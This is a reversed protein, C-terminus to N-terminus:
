NGIAIWYSKTTNSGDTNQFTFGSTSINSVGCRGHNGSAYGGTASISWVATPFATPFSIATSSGASTAGGDGWQLYLAGPLIITGNAGIGSVDFGLSTLASAVSAATPTASGGTANMVFTNAAQAALGAAPLGTCNTLTGSAPTGLAGSQFLLAGTGSEDTMASRLNASSPTALWTAVNSGLGTIGGVPLTCNTLTGSSPTGLAGNFLVPAGASGTNVALATAIGTGLGSIDTAVAVQQWSPAGSSVQRLFKNTATSNVALAQIASTGNGYLVGNSALTVAGTGGNAVALTGGIASFPVPKGLVPIQSLSIVLTENSLSGSDWTVNVTTNTSFSSSSITGYITGTGSGVARVRRNAEYVATVDVGAITFSTGSAYVAPVALNGAGQTGTGYQFWVLDNALSRVDACMQRATNNVTSPAQGEAWNISGGDATANTAAVVAWSDIGSM